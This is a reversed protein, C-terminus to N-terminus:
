LINNLKFDKCESADKYFKKFVRARAFTKLYFTCKKLYPMNISIDICKDNTIM